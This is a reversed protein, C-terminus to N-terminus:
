GEAKQLIKPTFFPEGIRNLFEPEIGRGSDAVVIEVTQSKKHYITKITFTSKDGTADFANLIMVVFVERIQEKDIMVSPLDPSFVKEITMKSYRIVPWTLAFADEIVKHLDVNM